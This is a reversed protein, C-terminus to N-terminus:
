RNTIRVQLAAIFALLLESALKVGPVGAAEAAGGGVKLIVASAALVDGVTRENGMSFHITHRRLSRTAQRQSSYGARSITIPDISLPLYKCTCTSIYKTLPQPALLVAQPM